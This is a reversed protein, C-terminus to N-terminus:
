MRHSHGHVATLNCYRNGAFCSNYIAYQLLTVQKEKYKFTNEFDTQTETTHFANGPDFGMYLM